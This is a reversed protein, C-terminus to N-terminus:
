EKRDAPVTVEKEGGNSEAKGRMRLGGGVGESELGLATTTDERATM